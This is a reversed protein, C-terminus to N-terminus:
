QAIEKRTRQLPTRPPQQQRRLRELVGDPRRRDVPQPLRRALRRDAANM